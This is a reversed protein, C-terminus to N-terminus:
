LAVDVTVRDRGGRKSAYMLQDALHLSDLPQEERRGLAAGISVTVRLPGGPLDHRARLAIETLARNSVGTLADRFAATKLERARRLAAMKASSHSFVEVTGITSGAPDRSPTVRVTVPM